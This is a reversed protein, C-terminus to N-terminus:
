PKLRQAAVKAAATAPFEKIIRRYLATAGAAKGSRALSDAGRLLTAARAEDPVVRPRPKEKPPPEPEVPKLRGVEDEALFLLNGKQERNLVRVTVPYVRQNFIATQISRSLDDGSMVTVLPAPRYLYVVLIETGRPLPTVRGAKILGEVGDQDRAARFARLQDYATIDTCGPSRDVIVHGREGVKAQWRPDSVWDDTGALALVCAIVLRSM